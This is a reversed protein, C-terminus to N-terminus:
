TSPSYTGVALYALWRPLSPRKTLILQPSFLTIFTCRWDVPRSSTLRNAEAVTIFGSADDDFAEMLPQVTQITIYKLAWADPDQDSAASQKKQDELKEHYFDRIALM